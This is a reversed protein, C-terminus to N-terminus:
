VLFGTERRNWVAMCAEFGVNRSIIRFSWVFDSSSRVLSRWCAPCPELHNCSPTHPDPPWLTHLTGQLDRDDEINLSNIWCDCSPTALILSAPAIQSAQLMLTNSGTGCCTLSKKLCKGEGM